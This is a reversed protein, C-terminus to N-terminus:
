DCTRRCAVRLAQTAGINPVELEALGHGRLWRGIFEAGKGAARVTPRRPLRQGAPAIERAAPCLRVPQTFDIESVVVLKFIDCARAVEFAFDGAPEAGGFGPERDDG